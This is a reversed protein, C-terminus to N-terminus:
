ATSETTKPEVFDGLEKRKQSWVGNFIFQGDENMRKRFEFWTYGADSDVPSSRWVRGHDFIAIYPNHYSHGKTEHAFVRSGTKAALVAAFGNKIDSATLCCYLNIHKAYSLARAILPDANINTVNIGHQIGNRWGHSFFTISDLQNTNSALADMVKDLRYYPKPNCDVPVLKCGSNVRAFRTAGPIFAGTADSKGESNTSTYFVYHTLTDKTTEIAPM